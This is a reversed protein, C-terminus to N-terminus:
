AFRTVSRVPFGLPLALSILFSQGGSLNQTSRIDSTQCTDIVNLDLPQETDRILIYRNNMKQLHVNAQNLMFKFTLGQAFDRFKKGDASGILLHLRSWRSLIRKKCIGQM